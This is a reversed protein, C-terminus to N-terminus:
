LVAITVSCAISLKSGLALDIRNTTDVFLYTRLSTLLAEGIAVGILLVGFVNLATASNQMLVKDIITQTILPNALGFLQIFFSAILVEIM